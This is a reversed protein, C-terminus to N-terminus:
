PLPFCPPRDVIFLKDTNESVELRLREFGVSEVSDIMTCVVILLIINLKFRM